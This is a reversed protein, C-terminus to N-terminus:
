PTFTVSRTAPDARELRVVVESGPVPVGPVKARVAPDRLQIVGEDIVVADFREGERGHLVVAELLDVVARDVAGARRSAAAMTAPLAPLAARDPVGLCCDSVYRDQLRRLPATAHAYPAAVAWHTQLEPEEGDFATYGAGFGIRSAEHVIAAHAPVAPDLRRVFEPYSEDQPWEVGLARAALRLREFAQPKPDPQTRLLGVGADLMLSAAVMGCLLSIQANYEEFEGPVRYRVTWGGDSPVVEQEARPLRVGGRAREIDLRLLGIARLLPAVDEPVDDYTHQGVSRVVRRAVSRHVPEGARDLDITWLVAPRWEGPLLSGAGESLVPPYLPIKADPLYLTAGRAHAERDLAGGPDVFYGPDAIAYSVRFGDDTEALHMAQDLDRAGPPDITIFPLEVREGEVPKAAAAQAEAM